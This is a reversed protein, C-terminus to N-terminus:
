FAGALLAGTAAIVEGDANAFGTDNLPGAAYAGAGTGLGVANPPSVGGLALKGSLGAPGPLLRWTSAASVAAAMAAIM